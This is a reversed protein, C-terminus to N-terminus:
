NEVRWEGSEVRLEITKRGLRGNFDLGEITILYKGAEDSTYFDFTARGDGDTIINPEWHITTRLDQNLQNGSDVEYVPKYFTKTVHLGEPQVTLIGKPTYNRIGDRGTKSTIVILGNGGNSGYIATYNVNRLVEVSQIDQPVIMSLQDGELYMGDLVVQMEGGGRTTHPRGNQFMVGLLRGNLCMELTSCTELDEAGLVQDANGPGNLNSSRESAKNRPSRATVVVEEIAIMREMLGQTELGAFFPKSRVIQDLFVSNVNNLEGGANRNEGPLAREEKPVFIDINRKGKDDKATILFKVSDPFFLHDFAFFGEENAVTDIFDMFNRTSVLTMQANPFPAKRGLKRAQGKITIGKEPAFAWEQPQLDARLDIKRWGQTLLLADIDKTRIEPSFYYGPNEIYGRIDASLLLNSLISPMTGPDDDIKSLNVVSASLAANRISDTALGTELSVEVKRRASFASGNTTAELPMDSNKNVIFVPREMIPQMAANLITVTLVGTPFDKKDVSFVLENKSAKQKSVFFPKGMYHVIFYIDQGDVFTGVLNVQVFLRRPNQNNVILNHGATKVPPLPVQDMTGDAFHAHATLEGTRDVFIPSAGMGLENTELASLTDNQANLIYVTAAIGKGDPRLAKVAINNLQGVLIDGGEAFLQLVNPRGPAPLKFLKTLPMEEPNKFSLVLKANAYPEAFPLDIRGTEDTTLRGKKLSKGGKAIIEYRVSTKELPRQRLDKLFVAYNGDTLLSETLVNDTRGNSIHVNQEFFYTASDNRMWNTYARLRYTGEAVTDALTIDGVGLGSVIPIKLKYAMESKPDILEVYGINSLNSLFNEVGITAYAKFWITEGATYSYKDLHLHIKEVPKSDHFDATKALLSQIDQARLGVFSMLFVAFLIRKLGM